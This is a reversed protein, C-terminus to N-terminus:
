IKVRFNPTEQRLNVIRNEDLGYPKIFKDIIDFKGIRSAIHADSSAIFECNTQLIKDFIGYPFNKNIHKINLEVFVGLETCVEAVAKCDVIAANNMHALIAVPYKELMKIIADTNRIIEKKRAKRFSTMYAPWYLKRFDYFSQPRAWRHFGAILYDFQEIENLEIDLIGDLGIIDAEISYLINIDTYEKRLQEIERKQKISKKRTLSLTINNYGHDSIGIEKLGIVRAAKINDRITSRADSYISHTHYDGYYRTM